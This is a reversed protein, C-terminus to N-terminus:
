WASLLAAAHWTQGEYSLPRLRNRAPNDARVRQLLSSTLHQNRHILLYTCFRTRSALGDCWSRHRPRRAPACPARHQSRANLIQSATSFCVEEEVRTTCRPRIKLLFPCIRVRLLDLSMFHRGTVRDYSMSIDDFCPM